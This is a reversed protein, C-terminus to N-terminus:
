VFGMAVACGALLLMLWFANRETWPTQDDAYTLPNPIGLEAAPLNAPELDRVARDLDYNAPSTNERGYLLRYKVGPKAEFILSPFLATAVAQNLNLAPSDADYVRLQLHRPVVGLKELRLDQTTTSAEVTR